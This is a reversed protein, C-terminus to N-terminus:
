PIQRHVKVRSETFSVLASQWQTEDIGLNSYTPIFTNNMQKGQEQTVEANYTAMEFPPDSIKINVMQNNASSNPYRANGAGGITPALMNKWVCGPIYRANINAFTGSSIAPNIKWPAMFINWINPEGEFNAGYTIDHLWIEVEAIRYFQFCKIPAYGTTVILNALSQRLFSNGSVPRTTIKVNLPVFSSIVIHNSGGVGTFGGITDVFQHEKATGGSTQQVAM